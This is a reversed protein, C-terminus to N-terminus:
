GSREYFPRSNGTDDFLTHLPSPMLGKEWACAQTKEQAGVVSATYYSQRPAAKATTSPPSSVKACSQHIQPVDTQWSKKITPSVGGLRHLSQNLFIDLLGNIFNVSKKNKHIIGCPFKVTATYLLGPIYPIFLLRVTLFPVARQKFM